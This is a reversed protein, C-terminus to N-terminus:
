KARFAERERKPRIEKENYTPRVWKSKSKALGQAPKRKLGM